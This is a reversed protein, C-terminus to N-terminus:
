SLDPRNVLQANLYLALANEVDKQDASYPEASQHRM